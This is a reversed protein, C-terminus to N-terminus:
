EISKTNKHKKQQCSSVNEHGHILRRINPIHMIIILLAVTILYYYCYSMPFFLGTLPLSVGLCISGISVYKTLWKVVFFIIVSVLVQIPALLFSAGLTTNVGKGGKLKLFVSFNHGLIAALAIFYIFYDEFFIINKKQLLITIGIPLFGKLIDCVQTLLAINKGAVREVNTSGISMSGLELINKGTGCKTFLYGFPVSGLLYTALLFFASILM